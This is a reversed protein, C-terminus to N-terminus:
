NESVWFDAPFRITALRPDIASGSNTAETRMGPDAAFTDQNAM